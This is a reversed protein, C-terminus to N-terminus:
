THLPLFDLNSFSWPAQLSEWFSGKLDGSGPGYATFIQEATWVSPGM